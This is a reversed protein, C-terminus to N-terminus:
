DILWDAWMRGAGHLFDLSLQPRKMKRKVKDQETCDETM